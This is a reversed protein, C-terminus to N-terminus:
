SYSLGKAANRIIRQTLSPFKPVEVASVAFCSVAIGALISYLRINLQIIVEVVLDILFLIIDSSCQFTLPIQVVDPFEACEQM